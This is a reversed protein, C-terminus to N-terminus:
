ERHLIRLFWNPTNFYFSHSWVQSNNVNRLRAKVKLNSLSLFLLLHYGEHLGVRASKSMLTVQKQKPLWAFPSNFVFGFKLVCVCVWTINPCWCITSKTNVSCQDDTKVHYGTGVNMHTIPKTTTLELLAYLLM